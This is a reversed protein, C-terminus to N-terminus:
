FCINVTFVQLENRAQLGEEGARIFSQSQLQLELGSTTSRCTEPAQAGLACRFGRHDTVVHENFGVRHLHHLLAAHTNGMQGQPSDRTLGPVMPPPLIAEM